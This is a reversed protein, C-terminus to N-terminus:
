PESVVGAFLPLNDHSTIVFLFPRDLTLYVEEALEEPPLGLPLVFQMVTYAAAAIGEEDIALRTAHQVSNLHVPDNGSVIPSFDASDQNFVDTIGLNQLKEALQMDADIDFKPLSLHVKIETQNEYNQTNGLVMDLAYGSRLIDEPTKGEDPLILWMRSNDALWLYTATFDEGWFYHGQSQLTNMYTTDMDGTPTHFIGDTSAEERFGEAWKVQYYITSVLAMVTGPNMEINQAQSELLGGTQTNLWDQLAQNMQDSGLDGRYVSTYYDQALTNATRRNYRLDRHLWLSNALVTKTVGDDFYHANWVQSAQTRLDTISDSHLIDLIQQRSNGESAEALMALAMYINLPSCVTNEGNSILFQPISRSFFDALGSSYGKPQSRQTSIDESWAREVERFGENDFIRTSEDYFSAQDPYPAMQPYKPAAVPTAYATTPGVAAFFLIVLALAAAAPAFWIPRQKKTSAADAIYTDRIHDLADALKEHM